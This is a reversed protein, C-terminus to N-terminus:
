HLSKFKITAPFTRYTGKEQNFMIREHLHDLALGYMHLHVTKEEGRVHISHIDEPMFAVGTGYRVTEEKFQEVTGEGDITGDDTRNYFRNLEEGAVGAIVAWTTHNHPRVNKGPMGISAYLAFRHDDDESLRYIVASGETEPDLDFEAAPFLEKQCALEIVESKIKDISDRNVGLSSEIERIRGMCEAIQEDRKQQINM